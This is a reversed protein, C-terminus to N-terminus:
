KEINDYQIGVEQLKELIRKGTEKYAIVSVIADVAIRPNGIHDLRSVIFDEVAELHNSFKIVDKGTCPKM